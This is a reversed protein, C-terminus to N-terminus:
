DNETSFLEPFEEELEDESLELPTCGHLRLFDIAESYEDLLSRVGKMENVLHYTKGGDVSAYYGVTTTTQPIGENKSTTEGFFFYEQEFSGAITIADEMSLNFLLHRQDSTPNYPADIPIRWVNMKNLLADFRHARKKGAKSSQISVRPDRSSVIAWTRITDTANGFLTKDELIRIVGACSLGWRRVSVGGVFGNIELTGYFEDPVGWDLDTNLIVNWLRGGADDYVNVSENTRKVHYGHDCLYEELKDLENKEM